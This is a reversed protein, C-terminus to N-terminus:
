IVVLAFRGSFVFDELLACARRFSHALSRGFLPEAVDLLACARRFFNGPSVSPFFIAPRTLSSSRVAKERSSSGCRNASAPKTSTSSSAAVVPMGPRASAAAALTAPEACICMPYSANETNWGTVLTGDQLLAAAAVKFNSYPSYSHPLAARAAALLDRDAPSLGTADPYSAYTIQHTPM